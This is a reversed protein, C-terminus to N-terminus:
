YGGDIGVEILFSAVYARFVWGILFFGQVLYFRWLWVLVYTVLIKCVGVTRWGSNYVFFIWSDKSVFRVISRHLFFVWIVKGIM